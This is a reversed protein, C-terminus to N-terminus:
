AVVCPPCSSTEGQARAGSRGLRFLLNPCRLLFLSSLFQKSNPHSCLSNKDWGAQMGTGPAM